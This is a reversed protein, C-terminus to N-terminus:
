CESVPVLSALLSYPEHRYRHTETSWSHEHTEAPSDEWEIVAGCQPMDLRELFSYMQTSCIRRHSRPRSQFGATSWSPTLPAAICGEVPAGEDSRDDSVASRPSHAASSYETDSGVISPPTSLGGGCVWQMDDGYPKHAHVPSYQPSFQGVESSVCSTLFSLAGGSASCTEVSRESLFAASVDLAKVNLPGGVTPAALLLRTYMTSNHQDDLSVTPAPSSSRSSSCSPPAAPSGCASVKSAPATEENCAGPIKKGAGKVVLKHPVLRVDGALYDAEKLAARIFERLAQVVPKKVISIWIKVLSNGSRNALVSAGNVLDRHPFQEGILNLVVDLWASETTHQSKAILKFHGGCLNKPDEWLPQIDDKFVHISTRDPMDSFRHKAFLEWFAEISDFQEHRKLEPAGRMSSTWFTWDNALKHGESSVMSAM